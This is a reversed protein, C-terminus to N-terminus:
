VLCGSFSIKPEFVALGAEKFENMINEPLARTTNQTVVWTILVTPIRIIYYVIRSLIDGPIVEDGIFVKGAPKLLRRVQKLVFIREVDNLESFVLTSVILDFSEDDFHEDLQAIDFSMYLAGPANQRAINLMGNNNDIGVVTAGKATSVRSNEHLRLVHL